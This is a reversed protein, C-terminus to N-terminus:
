QLAAEGRSLYYFSYNVRWLVTVVLLSGDFLCIGVVGNVAADASQTCCLKSDSSMTHQILSPFSEWTEEVPFYARVKLAILERWRWICLLEYIFDENGNRWLCPCAFDCKDLNILKLWALLQILSYPPENLSGHICFLVCNLSKSDSHQNSCVWNIFLVAFEEKTM